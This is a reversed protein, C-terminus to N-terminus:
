SATHITVSPHPHDLRVFGKAHRAAGCTLMEARGVVVGWKKRKKQKRKGRWRDGREREKGVRMGMGGSGSDRWTQTLRPLNWAHATSVPHLSEATTSSLKDPRTSSQTVTLISLPLRSWHRQVDQLDGLQCWHTCLYAKVCARVCM